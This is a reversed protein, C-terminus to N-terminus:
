KAAAPEAPEIRAILLKDIRRQDMDVVEFRWGYATFADGATPIRHLQELVFGALTAYGHGGFRAVGLLDAVEDVAMGADVLWSGDARQVAAPSEDIGTDPVDKAISILIDTPTVAGELDGYEDVVVAMHVPTARFQEILNLSPMEASVYIPQKSVSRLDSGGGRYLELVDRVHVVGLVEDIGEGGCLPYRSHGHRRIDDLVKDIPDEVSLWALERRPVMIVRVPRDAFRLVGAILDRETEEFVGADTGEAIMAKVEEETVTSGGDDRIRLLRLVAETSLRLFWVLPRGAISLWTMPRAVFCAIAEAHRLALRKPVLEGVILSLYTTVVVVAAFAIPLAWRALPEYRAILEALPAAFTAGSYAGAFIGILTIGVQVTSLFGTPDEALTLAQQAGRNGARAMQELRVRRASVLALESMAFFGNLLILVLVIIFEHIPM